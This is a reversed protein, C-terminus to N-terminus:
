DPLSTRRRRHVPGRPPRGPETRPRVQAPIWVRLWRPDAPGCQRSLPQETHDKRASTPHRGTPRHVRRCAHDRHPAASTQTPWTRTGTLTPIGISSSLATTVIRRRIDESAVHSRQVASATREEAQSSDQPSVSILGIGRPWPSSVIQCSPDSSTAPLALGRGQRNSGGRKRM